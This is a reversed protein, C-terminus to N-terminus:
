LDGLISDVYKKYYTYDTNRINDINSNNNLVFYKNTDNDNIQYLGIKM